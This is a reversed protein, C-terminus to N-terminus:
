KPLILEMSYLSSSSAQSIGTRLGLKHAVVYFFFLIQVLLPTGRIIDVYFQALMVCIAVKSRQLLAAVVGVLLSLGLSAISIAITALWGLFFFQHYAWVAQWQSEQSGILWFIGACVFAMLCFFRLLM